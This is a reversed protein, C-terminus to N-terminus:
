GAPATRRGPPRSRPAVASPPPTLLSTTTTAATAAAAQPRPAGPPKGAATSFDGPGAVVLVIRWPEGTGGGVRLGGGASVVTDTFRAWPLTAGATFSTLTRLTANATELSSSTALRIRTVVIPPVVSTPVSGMG